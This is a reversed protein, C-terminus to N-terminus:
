PHERDRSIPILGRREVFARTDLYLQEFEAWRDYLANLSDVTQEANEPYEHAFNNRLNRFFQWIRADSIVGYKELDALIDLFPRPRDDGDLLTVLSPFLRTGMADQLKTFRYIFQDIHEVRDDDLSQLGAKNLPFFEVLRLRARAQRRLHADCEHIASALKLKWEENM